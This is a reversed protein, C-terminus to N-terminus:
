NNNKFVPSARLKNIHDRMAENNLLIPKVSIMRYDQGVPIKCTLHRTIFQPDTPPAEDLITECKAFDVKQMKPLPPLSTKVM